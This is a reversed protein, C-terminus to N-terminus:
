GRRYESLRPWSPYGLEDRMRAHRSTASRRRGENDTYIRLTATSMGNVELRHDDLEDITRRPHKGLVEYIELAWWACWGAIREPPLDYRDFLDLLDRNFLDEIDQNAEETEEPM